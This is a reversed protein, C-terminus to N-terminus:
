GFEQETRHLDVRYLKPIMRDSIKVLGSFETFIISSIMPGECLDVLLSLPPIEITLHFNLEHARSSEETSSKAHHSTEPSPATEPKLRDCNPYTSPIWLRTLFFPSPFGAQHNQNISSSGLGLMSM